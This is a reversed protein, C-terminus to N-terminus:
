EVRIMKPFAGTTRNGTIRLRGVHRELLALFRQRLNLADIQM